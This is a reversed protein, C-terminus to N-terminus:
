DGNVLRRITIPDKEIMSFLIRTGHDPVKNGLEWGQLTKRPLNYAQAFEEQSMRLRRRLTKLRAAFHEKLERDLASRLIVSVGAAELDDKLLKQDDVMPLHIVAIGEQMAKEVARKAKLLTAGRRVLALTAAIVDVLHSGPKLAIEEPSGSNVRPIAQVRGQQALREKFSSATM